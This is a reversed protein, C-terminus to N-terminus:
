LYLLMVLAILTGLAISVLNNGLKGIYGRNELTAGIVSDIQCGTFGAVIPTAIQVVSLSTSDMIFLFAAAILSTYLAALFAWLEGTTSVGGNIGAKVRRFSTILYAKHNLVGIESAATDSAAVAVSSIFLVTFDAYNLLTPFFLMLAAISLPVAGNAAVNRWGREGKNGEQLGAAKKREFGYRTVGVSTFLFVLLIILWSLSALGIILGEIFALINGSATMIGAYQSVSALTICILIVVVISPYDVM